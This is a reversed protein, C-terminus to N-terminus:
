IVLYMSMHITHVCTNYYTSKRLQTSTRVYQPIRNCVLKETDLTRDRNYTRITIYVYTHIQLAALYICVFGCRITCRHIIFQLVWYRYFREQTDVQVLTNGLVQSVLVSYRRDVVHQVSYIIHAYNLLVINKVNIICCVLTCTITYYEHLTGLQTHLYFYMRM